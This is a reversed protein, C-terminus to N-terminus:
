YSGSVCALASSSLVWARGGDAAAAVGRGAVGVVVDFVISARSCDSTVIVGLVLSSCGGSNTLSHMM